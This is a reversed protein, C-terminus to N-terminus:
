GAKLVRSQRTAPPQTQRMRAAVANLDERTIPRGAKSLGVLTYRHRWRLKPDTECISAVFFGANSRIRSCRSPASSEIRFHVIGGWATPAGGFILTSKPDAHMSIASRYQASQLRHQLPAFCAQLTGHHTVSAKTRFLACSGAPAAPAVWVTMTVEPGSRFTVLKRAQAVIPVLPKATRPEHHTELHRVGLFAGLPLVAVAGLRLLQTNVSIEPAPAFRM